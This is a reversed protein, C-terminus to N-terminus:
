ASLVKLVESKRDRSIDFTEGTVLVVQSPKVNIGNIYKRNILYSKHIRIFGEWQMSDEFHKLLKSEMHVRLMGQKDYYHVQTYSGDSKLFLIDKYDIFWYNRDFVMLRDNRLGTFNRLEQRITSYRMREIAKNVALRLEKGKVPKLLYDIANTKFANLAYEESSTTFIIPYEHEPLVNLFEFATMDGLDIDLFLLDFEQNVMNAIAENGSDYQAVVKIELCFDAIVKKLIEASVSEDEIIIAKIM